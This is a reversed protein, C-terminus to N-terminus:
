FLQEKARSRRLVPGPRHPAEVDAAVLLYGLPAPEVFHAMGYRPDSNVLKVPM